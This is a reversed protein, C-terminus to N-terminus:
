RAEILNWIDAHKHISCNDMMIVSNPALYPQMNNLLGEIFHTFTEACFSGAIIDCHLIGDVLSLAPLVSYCQGHIFFSKCQANTGRILWAQGHYTMWHDVSSEDVFVLQNPSYQGIRTIYEACKELS